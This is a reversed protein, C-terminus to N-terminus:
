GSAGAARADAGNQVLELLQRHAYGGRATDEEYNAHENVLNPQSRYAELTSNSQEAIYTGM